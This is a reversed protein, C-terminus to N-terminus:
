DGDGQALGMGMGMGTELGRWPSFKKGMGEGWILCLNNFM